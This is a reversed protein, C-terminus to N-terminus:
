KNRRLLQVFLMECLSLKYLLNVRSKVNGICGHNQSWCFVCFLLYLATGAMKTKQTSIGCRIECPIDVLVWEMLMWEVEGCFVGKVRTSPQSKSGYPRFNCVLACIANLCECEGEVNQLLCRM